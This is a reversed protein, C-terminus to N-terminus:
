SAPHEIERTPAWVKMDAPWAPAADAELRREYMRYRKVVRGGMAEMGRNMAINTELIWGMEGWTVPSVEAMDFHEIYLQAAVGTHQFEPKVGLFGVRCRDITRRRRLFHWWGFPLVRGNMKRLVQNIDPVTIAIGVPEGTDIKESVMFWDPDFVLQLEQAYADLDAKDYPVFGWNRAWAQNYIEAFVNMDRRLGRRRMHRLRIGHDPECREALEVIVPLIQARDAIELQWMLLDMAKELGARECLERYYPPQWPQRIMADLHGGEVVIGSEDNMVFDMPGVMRDRERERHWAEAAALLADAAEQDDECEFFGWMGWRSGHFANYAHDIHASIRGVVRGERRALFLQAEGHKFFANFRPSLFLRREIRLPPTWHPSTAHLRYPLEIFERRDRGSRVPQVELAM